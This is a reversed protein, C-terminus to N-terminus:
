LTILQLLELDAVTFLNEKSCALQIKTIPCTGTLDFSSKFATHLTNNGEIVEAM